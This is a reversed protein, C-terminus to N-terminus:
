LREPRAGIGIFRGTVHTLRPHDRLMRLPFPLPADPEREAILPGQLRRQVFQTIWTPLNRRRQVRRLEATTPIGDRLVPGLIRATAIADQIALNIGVGGAPSMAHASDGICLMGDIFWSRLRELRVRLLHVDSAALAAIADAMGPSIRAIRDKMTALDADTGRWAGAPIVHAVQFFHGRDITIILGSGAQIFPYRESASKAVRFWLVDMASAVGTPVLGAAARVDSDRGSADVVLRARVAVEGDPGVGTVGVVRDGDRILDGIRTSRLLTFKPHQAAADAILDLFDWQPMFTMVKRRTPLHTFDALTLETGYWSFTVRPMDDHPRTLFEDLLGLEALLDQTSPHITDGRFDRLFDAHKEIVVVRIGHRLLALALVLGAPGGGVIVCDTEFETGM